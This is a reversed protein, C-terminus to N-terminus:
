RKSKRMTRSQKQDSLRTRLLVLTAREREVDTKDSELGTKLIKLDQAETEAQASFQRIQEVDNWFDSLNESHLVLEALTM